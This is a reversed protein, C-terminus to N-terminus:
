YELYTICHCQNDVRWRLFLEIAEIRPQVPEQMLRWRKRRPYQLPGRAALFKTICNIHYCLNMCIRNSFATPCILCLNGVHFRGRPADGPM